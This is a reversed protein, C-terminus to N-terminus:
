SVITNEPLLNEERGIKDAQWQSVFTVLDIAGAEVLEGLGYSETDALILVTLKTNCLSNLDEFVERTRFSVLVDRAEDPDFYSLPYWTVGVATQVGPPLDPVNHIKRTPNIVKNYVRVEHGARALYEAAYTIFSETGGIGVRKHDGPGFSPDMGYHLDIKM